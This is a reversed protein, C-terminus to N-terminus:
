IALHWGWLKPILYNPTFGLIQIEMLNKSAAAPEWWQGKLAGTKFTLIELNWRAQHPLPFRPSIMKYGGEWELVSGLNLVM